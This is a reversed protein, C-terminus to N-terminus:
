VLSLAPPYDLEVLLPTVTKERARVGRPDTLKCSCKPIIWLSQLQLATARVWAM